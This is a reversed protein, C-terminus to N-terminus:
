GAAPVPHWRERQLQGRYQPPESPRPLGSRALRFAASHSGNAESSRKTRTLTTNNEVWDRFWPAHQHILWVRRLEPSVSDAQKQIHISGDYIKSGCRVGDPHRSSQDIREGREVSGIFTRHLGCRDALEAQTLSREGRRERIRRGLARLFKADQLNM